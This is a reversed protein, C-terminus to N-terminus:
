GHRDQQHGPVDHERFFVACRRLAFLCHNEVTKETIGLRAAIEQQSVGQIRRLTFVERCRIPLSQLAVHLLDIEQRRAASEAPSAGEDVVGLPDIEGLAEPREHRRHRLHNLAINRATTFLFARANVIPGVARARLVRLFSEQVLDDRDGLSPFRAGLWHRLPEEHPLVEDAFWRSNDPSPM